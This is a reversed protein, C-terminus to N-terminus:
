TVAQLLLHTPLWQLGLEVQGLLNNCGWSNPAIYPLSSKWRVRLVMFYVEYTSLMVLSQWRLECQPSIKWDATRWQEMSSFWILSQSLHDIRCLWRSQFFLQSLWLHIFEVLLKLLFLHSFFLIPLKIVLSTFSESSPFSSALSREEKNRFFVKSKFPSISTLELREWALTLPNESKGNIKKGRMRWLWLRLNTWCTEQLWWIHM